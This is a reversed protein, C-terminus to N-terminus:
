LMVKSNVNISSCESEEKNLKANNAINIAICQDGHLQNKGVLQVDDKIILALAMGYAHHSRDSIHYDILVHLFLNDFQKSGNKCDKQYTALM